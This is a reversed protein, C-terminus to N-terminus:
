ISILSETFIFIVCILLIKLFINKMQYRIRLNEPLIWFRLRNEVIVEAHFKISILIKPWCQSKKLGKLALGVFHDFVSLCNTPQQWKQPNAIIPNLNEIIGMGILGNVVLTGLWISVLWNVQQALWRVPKKIISFM